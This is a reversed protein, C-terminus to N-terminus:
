RTQRMISAYLEDHRAACEAWTPLEIRPPIFPKQLQELVAAAVEPPGSEPAIARVLGRQAFEDLGRVDTVLVPRRLALAELVVLPQTEFDSLLVVLAVKSLEEAMATQDDAPIARLEVQETLRLERVLRKLEDEYPGTGAIWVRADPRTELIYPLAEILRHHGKYRELRGISAIVPASEEGSPALLHDGNFDTCQPILEFREPPVRLAAGYLEIEYRALAVLRNARALLPRLVAMQRKRIRRRLASSHGGGHFTVLYPTHNRLAALMAIPAVLTHYSQIHVLDWRDSRVIRYIEPAFLYDARRPWAPVRIIEIGDREERRSSAAAPDTTLVTVSIGRREALRKSLMDVYREVGGLHPLFFPTVM